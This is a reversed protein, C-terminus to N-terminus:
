PKIIYGTGRITTIYSDQDPKDIKTRLRSIHVDIVNTQPDFHYEWVHELLMTRTVIQGKNRLLYELLKFERAQLPVHEGDRWVKRALVDMELDQASLQVESYGGPQSRRALVEVRAQLEAMAFPKTLYDDGGAQLGSVRDDVEGLASLILVPTQVHNARLTQVITLGDIHPLMRDMVMVDYSHKNAKDIGAKGDHAVDVEHGQSSLGNSIFEALETDDEVLLIQMASNDSNTQQSM